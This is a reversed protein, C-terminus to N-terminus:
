GCPDAVLAHFDITNNYDKNGLFSIRASDGFTGNKAGDDHDDGSVCVLNNTDGCEQSGSPSLDFVDDHPIVGFTMLNNDDADSKYGTYDSISEIQTNTPIDVTGYDSGEGVKLSLALTGSDKGNESADDQHDIYLRFSDDRLGSEGDTFSGTFEPSTDQGESKHAPQDIQIAPPVKDIAVELERTKGDTDKYRVTVPGSEVGLVAAGDMKESTAKGTELGWGELDGNADTLKLYGEYAGSFRSTEHLRLQQKGTRGDSLAEAVITTSDSKEETKTFAPVHPKLPNAADKVDATYAAKTNGGILTEFESTEYVVYLVTLTWGAPINTQISFWPSVEQADEDGGEQDVQGSGVDEDITLYKNLKHFGEAPNVPIGGDNGPANTDDNDNVTGYLTIPSNNGDVVYMPKYSDTPNGNKHINIGTIVRRDTSQTPNTLTIPSDVGGGRTTWRFDGVATAAALKTAFDAKIGPYDKQIDKLHVDFADQSNGTNNTGCPNETVTAPLVPANDCPRNNGVGLLVPTREDRGADKISIKIVNSNELVARPSDPATKPDHAYTAYVTGVETISDRGAVEYGATTDGDVCDDVTFVDDDTTYCTGVNVANIMGTAADVTDTSGARVAVVAVALILVALATLIRSSLQM